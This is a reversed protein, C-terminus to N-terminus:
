PAEETAPTKSVSRNVIKAYLIAGLMTYVSFVLTVPAVVTGAFSANAILFALPINRIATVIALARRREGSQGFMMGQGVLLLLAVLAIMVFHALPAISLIQERQSFLLLVVGALLGLQGLKPVFSFLRDAWGINVRRITMGVSIPIIQVILLTKIVEMPDISVGEDSPPLTFSLILPTLGVSLLAVIVMLGVSYALDGKGIAVFPAPAMPAIPAAAMIIIGIKIAPDIPVPLLALYILAPSVVFNALLGRSVPGVQRAVSLVEGFSIRLGAGLMLLIVGGMILTKVIIVM